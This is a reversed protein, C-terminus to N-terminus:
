RCQLAGRKVGGEAARGKEQAQGRLWLDVLGDRSCVVLFSGGLLALGERRVRGEVSLKLRSHLPAELLCAIGGRGM